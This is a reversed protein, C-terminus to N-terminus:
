SYKVALYVMLVMCGLAAAAFISDWMNASQQAQIVSIAVAPDLEKLMTANIDELKMKRRGEEM